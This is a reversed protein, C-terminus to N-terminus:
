ERCLRELKDRKAFNPEILISRSQSWISKATISWDGEYAGVDIITKPSLGRAAICELGSQMNPALCYVHAFHVFDDRALHYSLHMLSRKTRAPFLANLTKIIVSKLPM